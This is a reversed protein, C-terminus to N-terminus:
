RRLNVFWVYEWIIGKLIGEFLWRYIEIEILEKLKEIGDIVINM